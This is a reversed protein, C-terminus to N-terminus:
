RLGPNAGDDPGGAVPGVQAPHPQRDEVPIPIRDLPAAHCGHRTEEDEPQVPQVRRLGAQEGAHTRIRGIHTRLYSSSVLDRWLHPSARVLVLLTKSSALTIVTVTDPRSDIGRGSLLQDIVLSPTRRLAARTRGGRLPRTPWAGSGLASQAAPPLARSGSATPRAAVAREPAAWPRNDAVARDATARAM